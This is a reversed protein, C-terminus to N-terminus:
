SNSPSLYCSTRLYYILHPFYFLIFLYIWTVSQGRRFPPIKLAETGFVLATRQGVRKRELGPGPLYTKLYARAPTEISSVNSTLNSGM